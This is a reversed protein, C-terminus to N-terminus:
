SVHDTSQRVKHSRVHRIQLTAPNTSPSRICTVHQNKRSSLSASPWIAEFRPLCLLQRSWVVWLLSFMLLLQTFTSTCSSTSTLNSWLSHPMKLVKQPVQDIDLVLFSIKVWGAFIHVYTPWLTFWATTAMRTEAHLRKQVFNTWISM